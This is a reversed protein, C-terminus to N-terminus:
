KYQKRYYNDDDNEKNQFFSSLQVNAVIRLCRGRIRRVFSDTSSFWRRTPDSRSLGVLDDRSRRRQRIAEIRSQVHKRLTPIYGATVLRDDLVFSDVNCDLDYEYDNTCNRYHHVFGVEPPVVVVETPALGSGEALRAAATAAPLSYLPRSIHHIGLEFVASPRVIVKSRVRSFASRHVTTVDYSSFVTSLCRMLKRQQSASM